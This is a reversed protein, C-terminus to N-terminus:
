QRRPPRDPMEDKELYGDKNTDMQAFHDDPGPFEELSLKGDNDKDFEQFLSDKSPPGQKQGSQPTHQRSSHHGSCGITSVLFMLLISCFVIRNKLQNM